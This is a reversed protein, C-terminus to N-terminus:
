RFRPELRVSAGSSELPATPLTARQRHLQRTTASEIPKLQCHPKINLWTTPPPNHVPMSRKTPSTMPGIRPRSEIGARASDQGAEHGLHDDNHWGDDHHRESRPKLHSAVSPVKRCRAWDRTAITENQTTPMMATMASPTSSGAFMATRYSIFLDAGFPSRIPRNIFRNINKAPMVPIMCTAVSIMM